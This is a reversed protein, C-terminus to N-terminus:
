EILIDINKVNNGVLLRPLFIIPIYLFMNSILTPKSELHKLEEDSYIFSFIEEKFINNRNWSLVNLIKISFFYEIAHVPQVLSLFQLENKPTGYVKVLSPLFYECCESCCVSNDERLQHSKRNIIPDAKPSKNYDM